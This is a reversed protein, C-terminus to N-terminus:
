WDDSIKADLILTIIKRSADEIRKSIECNISSLISDIENDIFNEKLFKEFANTSIVFGKPIPMGAREMEGLFSGKGGALGVNRKSIQDFNKVFRM